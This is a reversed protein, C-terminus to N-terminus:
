SVSSCGTEKPHAAIGPSFRGRYFLLPEVHDHPHDVALVRGVVIRHDGGDAVDHLACEVVALADSLRPAGAAGIQVVDSV